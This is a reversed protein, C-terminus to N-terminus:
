TGFSIILKCWVLIDFIFIKEIHGDARSFIEELKLLFEAHVDIAVTSCLNLQM